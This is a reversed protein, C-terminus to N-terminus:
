KWCQCMRYYLNLLYLQFKYVPHGLIAMCDGTPLYFSYFQTSFDQVM